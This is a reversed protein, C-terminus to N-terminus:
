PTKEPWWRDTWEIDDNMLSASKSDIDAQKATQESSGGFSWCRGNWYRLFDPDKYLSAPWWGVSPPPGSRWKCDEGRPPKIYKTM